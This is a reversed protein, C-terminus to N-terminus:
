GLLEKLIGMHVPISNREMVRKRAAAGEREVKAPDSMYDLLADEVECIDPRALLTGTVGDEVIDSIGGVNTIVTPLGAAGAEIAVHPSCDARTPLVMLDCSAVLQRMEPMDASLGPYFRSSPGGHGKHNTIFHWQCAGFRHDEAIELLIDGGKRAFDGGVFVVQLASNDERAKPQWVSTDIPPRLITTQESRAGYREILDDRYWPSMCLMHHGAETLRTLKQRLWRKRPRDDLEGSYLRDYQWPTADGYIFYKADRYLPFLPAYQLTAVLINRHGDGYARKAARRGELASRLWKLRRAYPTRSEVGRFNELDYWAAQSLYQPLHEKWRVRVTLWGWDPDTIVALSM